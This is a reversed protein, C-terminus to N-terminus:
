REPITKRGASVGHRLVTAWRGSIHLWTGGFAAM